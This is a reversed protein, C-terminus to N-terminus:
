PKKAANKPHCRMALAVWFVGTSATRINMAKSCSPCEIDTLTPSNARMGDEAEAISLKRTFAKYFANLLRKWETEGKAVSDLRQEMNATFSYDMLDSFNEELRDTVIDGM